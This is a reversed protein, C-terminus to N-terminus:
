KVNLITFKVKNGTEEDAVTGDAYLNVELEITQEPPTEKLVRAIYDKLTM